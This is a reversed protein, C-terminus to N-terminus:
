LNQQRHTNRRTAEAYTQKDKGNGATQHASEKGGEPPFNIQFVIKPFTRKEV